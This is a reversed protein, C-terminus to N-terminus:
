NQWEKRTDGGSTKFLKNLEIQNKNIELQCQKAKERDEKFRISHEIYPMTVVSRYSGDANRRQITDKPYRSVMLNENSNLYFWNWSYLIQNAKILQSKTM